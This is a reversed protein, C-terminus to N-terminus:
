DYVPICFLVATCKFFSSFKNVIERSDDIESLQIVKFSDSDNISNLYKGILIVKEGSSNLQENYLFPINKDKIDKKIQDVSVNETPINQYELFKKFQETLETNVISCHVIQKGCDACFKKEIYTPCSTCGTLQKGKTKVVSFLDKESIIFGYFITVSDM